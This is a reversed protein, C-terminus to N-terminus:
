DEFLIVRGSDPLDGAVKKRYVKEEEVVAVAGYQPIRKLLVEGTDTRMYIRRANNGGIDRAIVPIGELRLFDLAFTGNRLGPNFRNEREGLINSGGFVKAELKKREAGISQVKGILLEMANIGYRATDDFSDMSAKGPLLIHNMGGIGAQRDVLCVSVCSGLLTEVVTPKSSAYVDGVHIAVRKLDPVDAFPIFTRRSANM